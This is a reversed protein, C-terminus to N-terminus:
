AFRRGGKLRDTFPKQLWESVLTRSELRQGVLVPAETDLTLLVSAGDVTAVSVVTPSSGTKTWLITGPLTYVNSHGDPGFPLLACHTVRVPQGQYDTFMGKFGKPGTFARSAREIEMATDEDWEIRVRSLVGANSRRKEGNEILFEAKVGFSHPLEVQPVELPLEVCSKRHFTDLADIILKPIFDKLDEFLMDTTKGEVSIRGGRVLVDRSDDIINTMVHICCELHSEGRLIQAQFPLGGRYWPLKSPHFNLAARTPITVAHPPLVHFGATIMFDPSWRRLADYAEEVKQRYDADEKCIRAFSLGDVCIPFLMFECGVETCWEALEIKNSVVLLRSTVQQLKPVTAKVWVPYNSLFILAAKSPSESEAETAPTTVMPEAVPSSKLLLLCLLSAMLMYWSWMTEVLFAVPDWVSPWVIPWLVLLLLAPRGNFKRLAM